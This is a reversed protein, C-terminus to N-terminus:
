IDWTSHRIYNDFSWIVWNPLHTIQDLENSV